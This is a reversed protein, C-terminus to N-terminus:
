NNPRYTQPDFWLRADTLPTEPGLFPNAIRFLKRSKLRLQKITAGYFETFIRDYTGEAMMLRMGSDVRAALRAGETTKPFWFYMVTPYYLCITEEVALDSMSGQRQEFERSVENAGRSFADFRKHRLMEFLGDYSSGTVVEFHNARLIGVDVWDAGAGLKFKRLDDLSVIAAFRPRDENRILFVRYGVLGKDVPLHVAILDREFEPTTDRYMVTLNGTANRLEFEQRKESMQPSPEMTYAGCTSTTRALATALIKWQYAYRNDMASEPPHYIYRM